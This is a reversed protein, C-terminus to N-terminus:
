QPPDKSLFQDIEDHLDLQRILAQGMYREFDTLLNQFDTGSSSSHKHHALDTIRGYVRGVTIKLPGDFFTSGYRHFVEEKKVKVRKVRGSWLPYLIERLSHAAQAIWDPNSRCETRSAFIAGQFIESPKVVPSYPEYLKDLRQCLDVQEPTLRAPTLPVNGAPTSLPEDPM